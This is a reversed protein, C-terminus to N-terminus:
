GEDNGPGLARRLAITLREALADAREDTPAEIMVRVVPETGSPRVLVRGTDGLEAEVARVETWFGEASSLGSRDHVRVNVLVQPLRTVVGALESLPVGARRAVDLLMVGTLIGDGTNAHEAFIVHGSQEGGLVLGSPEPELELRQLLLLRQQVAM